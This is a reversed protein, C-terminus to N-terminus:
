LLKILKEFEFSDVMKRLQEATLPHKHSLEEIVQELAEIDGNVAAQHLIEKTTHSLKDLVTSLKKNKVALTKTDEPLSPSLGRYSVHRCDNDSAIGVPLFFRFTSGQGPQSEVTIQGGMFEVFNKTLSLGIGTGGKNHIVGQEFYRFIKGLNEPSIGCGTDQLTFHLFIKQENTEEAHITLKIHGRDTFKIANNILNILIQKLKGEDAIICQPVTRETLITFTLGKERVALSFLNQIDHLLVALDFTLLNLTIRGAELKSGELINNILSLLHEGSKNIISIKEKQVPTLTTDKHLIQTFGLIANLPTRIEHSMNALFISKAKNAEEAIHRANILNAEMEKRLTIDEKVAVLHTIEGSSNFIPSISANEWYSEGNKRRNMFEGRWIDGKLLTQWMEQYFERPLNGSKLIRPNKGLVESPQYGTVTSFIPNVYEIVGHTDTIVVSVPSQEIAQSLKKLQQEILKQKTIDMLITVFYQPTGLRDRVLSTTVNAWILTGSKHFYRKEISLTSTQGSLLFRLNEQTKEIDKPHTLDIFNLSELESSSYGLIQSFSDNVLLYKGELSVEAIGVGAAMFINKFRQENSENFFDTTDSKHATM